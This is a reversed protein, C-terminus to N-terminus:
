RSILVLFGGVIFIMWIITTVKERKTSKNKRRGEGYKEELYHYEIDFYRKNFIVQISTFIFLALGLLLNLVKVDLERIETFFLYWMLVLFLYIPLLIKFAIKYNIKRLKKRRKKEKNKERDSKEIPLLGEVQSIKIWKDSERERVLTEKTLEGYKVAFLLEEETILKESNDERYFWSSM